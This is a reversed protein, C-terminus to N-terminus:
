HISWSQMGLRPNEKLLELQIVQPEWFIDQSLFVFGKERLVEASARGVSQLIGGVQRYPQIKDNKKEACAYM